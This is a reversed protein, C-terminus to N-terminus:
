RQRGLRVLVADDSRLLLAARCQGLPEEFVTNGRCRRGLKFCRVSVAVMLGDLGAFLLLAKAVLERLYCHTLAGDM